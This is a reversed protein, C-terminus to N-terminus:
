QGIFQTALGTLSQLAGMGGGSGVSDTVQTVGGLIASMDHKQGLGSVTNNLFEGWLAKQRASLKANSCHEIKENLKVVQTLESTTYDKDSFDILAMIDYINSVTAKNKCDDSGDECYRAVAAKPYNYWVTNEDSSSVFAEFCGVDDKDGESREIEEAWEGVRTCPVGGMASQMSRQSGGGAKAWEKVLNNVFTIDSNSPICEETLQKHRVGLDKVTGVLTMVTGILSTADTGLKEKTNNQAAVPAAKKITIAAGLAVDTVMFPMVFLLALFKKM